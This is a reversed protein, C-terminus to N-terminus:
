DHYRNECTAPDCETTPRRLAALDAPTFYQADTYRTREPRITYTYTEGTDYTLALTAANDYRNAELSYAVLAADGEKMAYALADATFHMGVETAGDATFHMRDTPDTDPTLVYTTTM